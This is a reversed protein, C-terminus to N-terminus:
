PRDGVQPTDPTNTQGAGRARFRLYKLACTTAVATALPVLNKWWVILSLVESLSVEGEGSNGVIYMASIPLLTAVIVMVVAVVIVPSPWVLRSLVAAAITGAAVFVIGTNFVESLVASAVFTVGLVFPAILRRVLGNM